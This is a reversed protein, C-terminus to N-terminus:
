YMRHQYPNILNAIFAPLKTWRTWVTGVLDVLARSCVASEEITITDSPSFYSIGEYTKTQFRDALIFYTCSEYEGM